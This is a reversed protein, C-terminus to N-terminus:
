IASLLWHGLTALAGLGYGLYIATVIPLRRVSPSGHRFHIAAVTAVTLALVLIDAATKERVM